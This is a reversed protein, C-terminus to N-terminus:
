RALSATEILTNRRSQESFLPTRTSVHSVGVPAGTKLPRRSTQPFVDRTPKLVTCYRSERNAIRLIYSLFVHPIRTTFRTNDRCIGFQRPAAGAFPALADSQLCTSFEEEGELGGTPERRQEEVHCHGLQRRLVHWGFCVCVCM